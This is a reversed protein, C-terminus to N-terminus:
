EIRGNEGLPPVDQSGPLVLRLRRAVSEHKSGLVERKALRGLEWHRYPLADRM